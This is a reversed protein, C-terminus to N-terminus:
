QSPVDVSGGTPALFGVASSQLVQALMATAAAGTAAMMELVTMVLLAMMVIPETMPTGTMTEMTMKTPHGPACSVGQRWTRRPRSMMTMKQPPTTGMGLSTMMMTRMKWNGTSFSSSIRAM